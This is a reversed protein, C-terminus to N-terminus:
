QIVEDARVLFSQPITLGLAKATKLNIVLEFKTPQEVPLDAPKAGKLIKGTYVGLQRFAATLNAGYSILGGAEVCERREFITPIAHRAALAVMQGCRSVLFPDTGVILGGGHLRGLNAFATEIEGDTSAKLVHFQVGKARSAKETERVVRGVNANTPNVLLGIARAKPVVEVILDLQKPMLEVTLITVGTLNGGPRALSAVLGQEVPDDGMFFVIPITATARKAAGAGLPGVTSVIVDVRRGVLDAVLPPLRDYHGEAWRYEIAVNQGEVFGTTSLGPHFGDLTARTLLGSAANGLFGIMPMAKQQAGSALPGLIWGSAIALFARRKLRHARRRSPAASAARHPPGVGQATTLGCEALRSDYDDRSMSQRGFTRQLASNPLERYSGAPENRSVGLSSCWERAWRRDYHWITYM